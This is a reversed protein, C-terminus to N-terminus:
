NNSTEEYILGRLKKLDNYLEILTQVQGAYSINGTLTLDHLTNMQEESPKWTYRGTLSKLWSAYLSLDHQLKVTGNEFFDIIEDLMVKDEESWPKQEGQKELWTLKKFVTYLQCPTIHYTKGLLNDSRVNYKDDGIYELWYTEGEKFDLFNAFCKIFGDGVFEQKEKEAIEYSAKIEGQKEMEKMAAEYGRRYQVKDATKYAKELEEEHKKPDQKELWSLIDKDSIGNTSSNNEAGKGFFEILMKRIREDESECLEPFVHGLSETITGREYLKRARELALEYKEKYDM